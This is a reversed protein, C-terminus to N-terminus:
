SIAGALQAAQRLFELKQRMTAALHENLYISSPDEALARRAEAIARDIVMLNEEIVVVTEPDLKYRAAALVGELEAVAADYSTGTGTLVTTPASTGTPQGGALTEEVGAGSRDGVSLAIWVSGASLLVLAIGAAVLQPLSFSFRRRTLPVERGRRYSELALVREGDSGFGIRAAIGPWLDSEPPAHELRSARAVVRRLDDLVGSCDACVSLHEELEEREAVPLEGDLYESLREVWRDSM